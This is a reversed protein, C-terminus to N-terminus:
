FEAEVCAGFFQKLFLREVIWDSVGNKPGNKAGFKSAFQLELLMGLGGGTEAELFAGGSPGMLTGM